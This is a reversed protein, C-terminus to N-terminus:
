NFLGFCTYWPDHSEISDCVELEDIRLFQKMASHQSFETYRLTETLFDYLEDQRNNRFEETQKQCHYTKPPLPPLNNTEKSILLPSNKLRNYLWVFDSFRRLIYHPESSGITLKIHYYWASSSKRSSNGVLVGHMPTCYHYTSEGVM